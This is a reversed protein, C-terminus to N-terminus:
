QQYPFTEDIEAQSLELFFNALREVVIGMFQEGKRASAKIPDGVGSDYTLLHWPRAIWVWGEQIAKLRPTRTAGHGMNNTNVLEPRLHLLLSTEMENAHEGGAEFIAHHTESAVTWWDVLFLHVTTRRCLERLLPKFENGGHGNLLVFKSIGHEEVSSVVDAVVTFLTSPTLSITWPFGLTNENVGYPIAPLLLVKAGAAEAQQCAQDAIAEVQITDTAYPLHLGHAETAGVPLVALEYELAQAQGYTIDSLRYNAM